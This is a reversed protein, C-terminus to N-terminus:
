LAWILLALLTVILSIMAGIMWGIAFAYASRMPNARIYRYM